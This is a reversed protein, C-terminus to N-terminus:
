RHQVGCGGCLKLRESYHSQLCQVKGDQKVTESHAAGGRLPPPQTSFLQRTAMTSSFYWGNWTKYGALPRSVYWCAPNVQESSDNRRVLHFCLRQKLNPDSFKAPPDCIELRRFVDTNLGSVWVLVADSQGRNSRIEGIWVYFGIAM